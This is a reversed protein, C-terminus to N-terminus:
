FETSYIIYHKGQYYLKNNYPEFSKPKEKMLLMLGLIDLTHCLFIRTYCYSTVEAPLVIPTVETGRDNAM